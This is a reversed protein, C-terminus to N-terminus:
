PCEAVCFSTEPYFSTDCPDPSMPGVVGACSVDQIRVQAWPAKCFLRPHMWIKTEYCENNVDRKGLVRGGDTQFYGMGGFDAAAQSASLHEGEWIRNSAVSGTLMYVDGRDAGSIMEWDYPMIPIPFGDIRIFGAGFMNEPAEAILRDRFTRAEYTNLNVENFESGACVSWCTYFDLLCPTMFDPMMLIIDGLRLRQTNLTAAWSIRRRIRRYAAQLVDVFDFTAAVATGNWTIGAGGAMLNGNWNIVISDLMNCDYGTAVWQQLGDFQGDTASNGVILDRRIDDLLVDMAFRMDWEREDTILAGDLRRKPDSKCYLKPQMMTRVPGKRGYRGFDEVTLKCTGFEYGHPDECPDGLHGRTCAGGSQEPRTFNIFEISRYCTDSVEFGMWDLLGLSGRYHLTLVEDTCSDFYHCCGFPTAMDSLTTQREVMGSPPM